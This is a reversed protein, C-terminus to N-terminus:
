RLFEHYDLNFKLSNIRHIGILYLVYSAVSSGRGLGWLINKETCIDVFYKCWQLLKIMNKEQYISFEEQVRQTEVQNTCKSICYEYIDFDYYYQPMLWNSQISKDFEEISKNLDINLNTFTLEAITELLQVEPTKEVTLLNLKDINGQYILDVIDQDNYIPNSFKDLKM